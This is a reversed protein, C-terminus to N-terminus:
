AKGECLRAWMQQAAREILPSLDVGQYPTKMGVKLALLQAKMSDSLDLAILLKAFEVPNVLHFHNTIDEALPKDIASLIIELRQSTTENTNM